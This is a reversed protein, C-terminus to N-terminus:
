AEADGQETAKTYWYVAKAYDQKVGLGEYYCFGLNYQGHREGAEASKTLWYIAQELNRAVGQGTIYCIGANAQALSDGSKANQLLEDFTEGFISTTSVVAEIM